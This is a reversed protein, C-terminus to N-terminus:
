NPTSQQTSAGVSPGLAMSLAAFPGRKPRFQKSIVKKVGSMRQFPEQIVTQHWPHQELEKDHISVEFGVSKVAGVSTPVSGTSRCTKSNAGRTLAM